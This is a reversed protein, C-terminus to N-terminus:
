TAESKRNGRACESRERAAECAVSEEVSRLLLLHGISQRCFRARQLVIVVIADAGFASSDIPWSRVEGFQCLSYGSKRCRCGSGESVSVLM